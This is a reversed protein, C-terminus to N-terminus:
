LVMELQGSVDASRKKRPTRTSIRLGSAEAWERWQEMTKKDEWQGINDRLELTYALNGVARDLTDIRNLLLAICGWAFGPAEIIELCKPCTENFTEQQRGNLGEPVECMERGSRLDWGLGGPGSIEMLDGLLHGVLEPTVCDRWEALDQLARDEQEVYSRLSGGRAERLWQASNARRVLDALRERLDPTTTM